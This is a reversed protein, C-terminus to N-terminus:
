GAFAEERLEDIIKVSEATVEQVEELHYVTKTDGKKGDRTMKLIVKGEFGGPRKSRLERYQRFVRVSVPWDQVFWKDPPEIGDDGLRAVGIHMRERTKGFAEEETLKPPTLPVFVATEGDEGLILMDSATFDDAAEDDWERPYTEERPKRRAM